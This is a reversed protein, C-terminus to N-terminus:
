KTVKRRNIIKMKEKKKARRRIIDFSMIALALWFIVSGIWRANLDETEINSLFVLLAVGSFILPTIYRAM